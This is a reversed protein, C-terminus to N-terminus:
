PAHRPQHRDSSVGQAADGRRPLGARPVAGPEAAPRLGVRLPRRPRDRGAGRRRRRVRHRRRRDARRPHGGPWTGLSRHVDFFGQVEDIVDDFRAPRTARPRRSPTATCRTACGPSRLGAATVKEVLTPCGTASGARRRLPHHLDAPGAENEPNLRDALAIADDATTTPGLKVGIPNRIRSLLEVHAGDLQRTREGIWVFHGPSTTPRGRHALRDPDDRARVGAGAGRPQLPLRGPPVRRPRRRHGAHVDAGPRDRQGGGRLAPRGRLLARLRHELRAGPAPRRVWRHRLRARPEAHGGLRPLRRGAAAPRAGARGRHVRLRQGRRRPLGAPHRGDAPRSTPPARSPTSAPSGASRSWRARLGAYTLVVAM